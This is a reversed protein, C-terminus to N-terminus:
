KIYKFFINKYNDLIMKKSLKEQFVKISNEGMLKCKEHDNILDYISDCLIESSGPTVLIGNYENKVLEPIGAYDSALIPLGMSMAERVAFPLDDAAITPHVYLDMINYYNFINDTFPVILINESLGYNLIVKKLSKEEPGDGIILLIIRNNQKQMLLNFADVLVHHGKRKALEGVCGIIFTNSTLKLEKKLEYKTVTITKKEFTNLALLIKKDEIKLVNALANKAYKSATLFSSVLLKIIQDLPIQIIRRLSNYPVAINNVM